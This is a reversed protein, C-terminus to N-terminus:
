RTWRHVIEAAARAIEEALDDDPERRYVRDLSAADALPYEVWVRIAERRVHPSPDLLAGRLAARVEEGKGFRALPRLCHLRVSPKESKLGGLLLRIATEPLAAFARLALSADLATVAEGPNPHEESLLLRVVPVAGRPDGILSLARALFRAVRTDEEVELAGTVDEVLSPDRWAGAVQAALKREAARPSHLLKRVEIGTKEDGTRVLTILADRRIGEVGSRALRRLAERARPDRYPALLGVAAARMGASSSRAWELIVPLARADKGEALVSLAAYRLARPLDTGYSKWVADLGERRGRQLLARAAALRDAPDDSELLGSLFSVAAEEPLLKGAMRVAFPRVSADIAGPFRGVLGRGGEEFGLKGLALIAESSILHHPDRVLDLLPAVAAPSGSNGLARAALRRVRGDPSGCAETMVPVAEPAPLSEAWLALISEALVTNKRLNKRLLDTLAGTAASGAARLQRRAWQVEDLDGRELLSVYFRLREEPGPPAAPLGLPPRLSPAAAGAEPVAPGPSRTPGPRRPEEGCAVAPLLLGAALLLAPRSM